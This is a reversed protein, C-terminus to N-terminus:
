QKSHKLILDSKLARKEEERKKAWEKAERWEKVEEATKLMKEKIEKMEKRHAEREAESMGQFKLLTKNM